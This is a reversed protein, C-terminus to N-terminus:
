FKTSPIPTKDKRVKKSKGKAKQRKVKDKEEGPCRRGDVTYQATVL